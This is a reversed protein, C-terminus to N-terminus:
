NAMDVPLPDIRRSMLFISHKADERSGLGRGRGKGVGDIYYQTLTRFSLSHLASLLHNPIAGNITKCDLRDFSLFVWHNFGGGYISVM